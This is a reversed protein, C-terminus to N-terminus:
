VDVFIYVCYLTLECAFSVLQNVLRELDGFTEAYFLNDEHPESALLELETVNLNGGIGVVIFRTEPPYANRESATFVPRGSVGDTVVIVTDPVDQRDGNTGTLVMTRVFRLATDTWTAFNMTTNRMINMTATQAGPLDNIFDGLGFQPFRGRAFTTLSVRFTDSGVDLAGIIAKVFQVALM